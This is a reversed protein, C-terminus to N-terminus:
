VSAESARDQWRQSWLFHDGLDLLNPSCELCPRKPLHSVAGLVVLREIDGFFSEGGRGVTARPVVADLSSPQRGGAFSRYPPPALAGLHCPRM